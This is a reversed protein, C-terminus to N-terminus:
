AHESVRNKIRLVASHNSTETKSVFQAPPSAIIRNDGQKAARRNLKFEPEYGLAWAIEAVRGLSMDAKGNLQRTIVSRHVGLSDAIDTRKIEPAGVLAEQLARRVRGIYRAAARRNGPLAIQFSM